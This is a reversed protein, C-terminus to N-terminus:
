FFIVKSYILFLKLLLVSCEKYGKGVFYSRSTKGCNNGKKYNKKFFKNFYLQNKGTKRWMYTFIKQIM